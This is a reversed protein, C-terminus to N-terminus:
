NSKGKWYEVMWPPLKFDVTGKYKIGGILESGDPWVVQQKGDRWQVYFFTVYGPGWKIDHPWQYDNPYYVIRGQAGQADTKELAKIMAENELSGAREAAEKLIYIADYTSATSTPADGVQEVFKNYFPICRESAEVPAFFALMTQYNCRGNTRKWHVLQQAQVNLGFMIAPIKLEGWQNSYAIGAPGASYTFIIHAGAEKIATLEAMVNSATFSPRWVGVTELGFEPAKSKILNVGPDCYLAKDAMIALKPKEIGLEKRVADAVMKIPLYASPISAKTNVPGGRFWYKYRDYDKAVKEALKSSSPGCSLFIKKHDAMVEIMALTAESRFGGVVFDVKNIIRQMANVADTVSAIENSDVKLIEVEYQKNGVRVGGSSNIEDAAINAAIWHHKGQVYKMPGIVAIKITKSTKADLCQPFSLVLFVFFTTFFISWIKTSRKKIFM